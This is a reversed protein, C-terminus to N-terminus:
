IRLCFSFPMTLILDRFANNLMCATTLNAHIQMDLGLIDTDLELVDLGLELVNLHKKQPITLSLDESDHQAGSTLWFLM